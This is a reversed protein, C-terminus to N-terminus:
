ISYAAVQVPSEKGSKGLYSVLLGSGASLGAMGIYADPYAAEPAGFTCGVWGM